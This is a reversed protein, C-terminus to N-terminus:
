VEKYKEDFYNNYERFKKLEKFIPSMKGNDDTKRYIKVIKSDELLIYHMKPSMFFQETYMIMIMFIIHLQEKTSFSNFQEYFKCSAENVIEKSSYLLVRTKNEYPFVVLYLYDANEVEFSRNDFIINDEFDRYVAVQAQTAFNVKYDLLENFLIVFENGKANKIKKLKNIIMKREEIDIDEAMSLYKIRTTIKKLTGVYLNVALASLQSKIAISSLCRNKRLIDYDDFNLVFDPNEYYKFYNNDCKNCILRFTHANSVGKKNDFIGKVDSIEQGYVVKGDLSINRLIFQPIAHSKCPSSINCGCLFCKDVKNLRNVENRLESIIKKEKIRDM